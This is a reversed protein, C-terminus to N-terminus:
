KDDKITNYKDILDPFSILYDNKPKIIIRAKM